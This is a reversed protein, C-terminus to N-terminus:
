VQRYGPPLEQQVRFIMKSSILSSHWRPGPQCQLHLSCLLDPPENSTQKHAAPIRLQKRGGKPTQEQTATRRKWWLAAILILGVKKKKKLAKDVSKQKM